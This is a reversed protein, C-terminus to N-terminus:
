ISFGSSTNSKKKFYSGNCFGSWTCRRTSPLRCKLTRVSLLFYESTPVTSTCVSLGDNQGSDTATVPLWWFVPENVDKAGTGDKM